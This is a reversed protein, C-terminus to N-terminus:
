IQVWINVLRCFRVRNDNEWEFEMVTVFFFPQVKKVKKHSTEYIYRKDM